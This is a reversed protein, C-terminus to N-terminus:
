GSQVMDRNYISLKPLEPNDILVCNIGTSLAQVLPEEWKPNEALLYEIGTKNLIIHLVEHWINAMIESYPRSEYSYINIRSEPWSVSAWIHAGDDDIKDENYYWISYDAGLIRVTHIVKDKNEMNIVM